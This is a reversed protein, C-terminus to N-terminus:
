STVKQEFRPCTWTKRTKMKGSTTRPDPIAKCYVWDERYNHQFCHKCDRCQKGKEGKTFKKVPASAGVLPNAPNGFLDTDVMDNRLPKEWYDKFWWHPLLPM